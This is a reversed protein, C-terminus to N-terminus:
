GADAFPRFDPDRGLGRTEPGFILYDATEYRVQTYPRSAKTTFYFLRGTTVTARFAEFDTHLHVALRPWYDLGARRVAKEDIRFGLKGILHLPTVTNVCLRGINGTNTPIEPEFLVIHM